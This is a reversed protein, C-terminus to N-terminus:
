IDGLIYRMSLYFCGLHGRKARFRVEVPVSPFEWLNALLGESPRQVLLYSRGGMGAGGGAGAGDVGDMEEEKVVRKGRRRSPPTLQPTPKIGQPLMKM